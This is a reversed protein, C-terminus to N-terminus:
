QNRLAEETDDILKLIQKNYPQEKQIENLIELAAKYKKQAYLLVAKKYKREIESNKFPEERANARAESKEYYEKVKPNNPDLRLAQQFFQMAAQYNRNFYETVGRRYAEEYNMKRQLRAIEADVKAMLEDDEVGFRKLESLKDIAELYRGQATLIQAQKRLENIRRRIQEQTREIWMTLKPNQPDRELAIKWEALAQNYKGANFYSIGKQLQREVFARKAQEEADKAALKKFEEEKRREEEEIKEKTKQLWYNVEENDPDLNLAANFKIYADFYQQKQFFSKGAELNNKIELDRLFLTRQAVENAIEEERQRKAIEIIEEKSKGFALSISVRHNQPFEPSFDYSGYSYDLQLRNIAVGAGFVVQGESFGVRLMASGRYTYEVGAHMKIRKGEGKEIDGYFALVDSQSSLNFPKSLGIKYNRPIRQQIEGVKLIPPIANQIIVGLAINQLFDPRWLLGVDAGVARGSAPAGSFLFDQQEIKISGGLYFNYPLQKGYGLILQLQAFSFRGLIDGSLDTNLVNDTGVRLIGVGFTGLNVTPHVYGVFNYQGDLPLTSYFLTVAKRTLVDLGGPNWYITTADQPAAIYAGGLGLARAGVGYSFISEYGGDARADQASVFSGSGWFLLLGCCALM